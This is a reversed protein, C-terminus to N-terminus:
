CNNRTLLKTNGVYNSLPGPFSKCAGGRVLLVIERKLGTDFEASDGRYHLPKPTFESGWVPARGEM